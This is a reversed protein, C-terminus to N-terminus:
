LHGGMRAYFYLLAVSFLFAIVCFMVLLLILQIVNYEKYSGWALMAFLQFPISTMFVGLGSSSTQHPDTALTFYIAIACAIFIPLIACVSYQTGKLLM